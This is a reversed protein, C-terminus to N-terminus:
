EGEFEKLIEDPLPSDFDDPVTFQGACLGFPRLQEATKAAPRVEALPKGDQVVLFSEGSELRRLFTSFDRQIDQVSITNM